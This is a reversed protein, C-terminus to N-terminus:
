IYVRSLFLSTQIRSVPSGSTSSCPFKRPINKHPWASLFPSSDGAPFKWSAPLAASLVALHILEVDQRFRACSIDFRNCGVEDRQSISVSKTSIHDRFSSRRSNSFDFLYKASQRFKDLGCQLKGFKLRFVELFNSNDIYDPIRSREDVRKHQVSDSEFVITMGKTMAEIRGSTSCKLTDVIDQLVCKLCRRGIGFHQDPQPHSRKPCFSFHRCNLTMSLPLPNESSPSIRANSGSKVLLDSTVPASRPSVTTLVITSLQPPVTSRSFVSDAPAHTSTRIGMM